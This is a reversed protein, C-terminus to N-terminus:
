ALGIGWSYEPDGRPERRQSATAPMIAKIRIAMGAPM